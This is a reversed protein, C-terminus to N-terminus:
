AKGGLKTIFAFHEASVPQVSLRAGRKILMMGDVEPREKLERLTVPRKFTSVYQVDVVFWRPKDPPSDADYYKSQKDFQTKDPYGTRTVRATGVIAMPEVRSHYFLVEDGVQMADRLFSRAKYNRVGDWATTKNPLKQLDDFSFVNPETKMLWYRKPM